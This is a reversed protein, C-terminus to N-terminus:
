VLELLINYFEEGDPLGDLDIDYMTANWDEGYPLFVNLQLYRDVNYQIDIYFYRSEDIDGRIQTKKTAHNSYEM